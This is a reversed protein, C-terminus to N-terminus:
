VAIVQDMTLIFITIIAAKLLTFGCPLRTTSMNLTFYLGEFKDKRQGKSSEITDM